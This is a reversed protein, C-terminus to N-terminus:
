EYVVHQSKVKETMKDRKGKKGTGGKGRVSMVNGSGAPVVM